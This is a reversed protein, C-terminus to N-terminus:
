LKEDEGGFIQEEAQNAEEPKQDGTFFTTLINLNVKKFLVKKINIQTIKQRVLFIKSSTKSVSSKSFLVCFCIKIKRTVQFIQYIFM